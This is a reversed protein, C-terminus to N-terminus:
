VVTDHEVGFAAEGATPLLALGVPRFKRRVPGTESVFGPKLRHVEARRNDCIDQCVTACYRDKAIYIHLHWQEM